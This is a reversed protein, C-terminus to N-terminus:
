RTIIDRHMPALVALLQNQSRFPIGRANMALQLADVLQLFHANNVGMERHGERMPTGTYVCGGGLIQCIQDTLQAKTRTLDRNGFFPRTTPNAVLQRAFEEMLERIGEVGGFDALVRPNSIVPYVETAAPQTRAPLGGAGLLLLTGLIIRRM